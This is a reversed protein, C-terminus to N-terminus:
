CVLYILVIRTSTIFTNFMSNFMIPSKPTGFNRFMYMESLFHLPFAFPFTCPFKGFVINRTYPFTPVLRPVRKPVDIRPTHVLNPSCRHSGTCMAPGYREGIYVGEVCHEHHENITSHTFFRVAWEQLTGGCMNSGAPFNLNLSQVNPNAFGYMLPVVGCMPIFTM